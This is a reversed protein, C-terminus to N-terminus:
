GSTNEKIVLDVAYYVVGNTDTKYSTTSSDIYYQSNAISPTNFYAQAAVTGADFGLYFSILGGDPLNYTIIDDWNATINGSVKIALQSTATNSGTPGLINNVLPPNGYNDSPDPKYGNTLGNITMATNPADLKIYVAIYVPLYM